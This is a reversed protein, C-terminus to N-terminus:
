GRKEHCWWESILPCPRISYVCTCSQECTHPSKMWVCTKFSLLERDNWWNSPCLNSSHFPFFLYLWGHHSIISPYFSGCGVRIYLVIFSKWISEFKSKFELSETRFHYQLKAKVKYKWSELCVFWGKRRLTKSSSQYIMENEQWGSSLHQVHQILPSRLLKVWGMIGRQGVESWSKGIHSGVSKSM